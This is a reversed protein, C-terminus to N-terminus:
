AGRCGLVCAVTKVLIRMDGLFTVRTVYDLDHHLNEHIPRDRDSSVQWAGTLGPRALHRPHHWLDNREVMAIMEPRPGVLSMDGRVVNWLQPLEDLSLKRLVRGLPTHRPDTASKPVSGVAVAASLDRVATTAAHVTTDLLMTRVKYITFPRSDRGVREQRFVAPAGLKIRVTLLLGCVLPALVLLMLLAIVRDIVPKVLRVYVGERIVLISGTTRNKAATSGWVGGPAQLIQAEAQV